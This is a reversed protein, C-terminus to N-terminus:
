DTIDEKKADMIDVSKRHEITEKQPIESQNKDKEMNTKDAHDIESTRNLNGPRGKANCANCPYLVTLSSLILSGCLVCMILKM